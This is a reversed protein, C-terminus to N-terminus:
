KLFHCIKIIYNNFNIFDLEKKLNDINEKINEKNLDVENQKSSIDNKIIDTM